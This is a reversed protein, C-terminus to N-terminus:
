KERKEEKNKEKIEEGRPKGIIVSSDSIGHAHNVNGYIHVTGGLVNAICDVNKKVIVNGGKMDKFSYEGFSSKVSGDLIVEGGLLNQCFTHKANGHIHVKGGSMRMCAFAGVDGKIEVFGNKMEECVSSNVNGEIIIHAGNNRYGVHNLYEQTDQLFLTCSSISEKQSNQDEKEYNLNEKKNNLDEKEYNSDEKEYNPNEKQNIIASLFLGSMKFFPIKEYESLLISLISAHTYTYREKQSLLIEEALAYAIEHKSGLRKENVEDIWCIYQNILQLIDTDNRRNRVLEKTKELSSYEQQIVETLKM